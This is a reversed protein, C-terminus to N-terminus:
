TQTRFAIRAAAKTCWFQVAVLVVCVVGVLGVGIPGTVVSQDLGVGARLADVIFEERLGFLGILFAEAGTVLGVFISSHRAARTFAEESAGAHYHRRGVYVGALIGLAINGFPLGMCLAVAVASWFLYVLVALRVDAGYFRAIWRKLCFADLAVGIGLGAFAALAIGSEPIPLLRYIALAAATWWWLVFLSAPCVVGLFLGVVRSEARSM